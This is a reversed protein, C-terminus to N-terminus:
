IKKKKKGGKEGKSLLVSLIVSASFSGIARAPIAKMVSGKRAPNTAKNAALYTRLKPLTGFAIFYAYMSYIRRFCLLYKVEACNIFQYDFNIYVLLFFCKDTVFCYCNSTGLRFHHLFCNVKSLNM